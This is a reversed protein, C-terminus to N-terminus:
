NEPRPPRDLKQGCEPCFRDNFLTTRGCHCKKWSHQYDIWQFETPMYPEHLNCLFDIECEKTEPM